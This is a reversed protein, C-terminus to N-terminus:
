VHARGIKHLDCGGGYGRMLSMAVHTHANVLGPMMVKGTCDVVREFEGAPRQTGVFTIKTGEVAVFAGDLAPKAPDMTLAAVNTFLISM